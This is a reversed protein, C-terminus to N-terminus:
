HRSFLLFFSDEFDGDPHQIELTTALSNLVELHHKQAISMCYEDEVVVVKLFLVM